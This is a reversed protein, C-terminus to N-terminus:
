LVVGERRINRLLPGARHEYQEEDMFLPTIVSDSWLSLDAIFGATADIEHGPQVPGKLVVLVDIDSDRGADGRAQSGYLIVRYLRSGYLSELRRKLTTLTSRTRANM